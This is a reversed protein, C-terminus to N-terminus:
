EGKSFSDHVKTWEIPSVYVKSGYFKAKTSGLCTKLGRKTHGFKINAGQEVKWVFEQDNYPLKDVEACTM